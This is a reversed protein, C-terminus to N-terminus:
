VNFIEGRFEVIGNEEDVVHVVEPWRLQGKQFTLVVFGSRWDKPNDETYDEFQTGNPM